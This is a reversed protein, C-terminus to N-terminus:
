ARVNTARVRTIVQSIRICTIDCRGIQRFLDDRVVSNNPSPADESWKPPRGCLLRQGVCRDPPEIEHAQVSANGILKLENLLRPHVVWGKSSKVILNVGQNSHRMVPLAVEGNLLLWHSASICSERAKCGHSAPRVEEHRAKPCYLTEYRLPAPELLNSEHLRSGDTRVLDTCNHRM